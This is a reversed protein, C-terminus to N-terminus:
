RSLVREKTVVEFSNQSCIKLRWFLVSFDFPDSHAEASSSDLGFPWCFPMVRVALMTSEMIHLVCQGSKPTALHVTQNLSCLKCIGLKPGSTSKELLKTQILGNGATFFWWFPGPVLKWDFNGRETEKPVGSVSALDGDCFFDLRM